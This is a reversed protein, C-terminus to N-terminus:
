WQALCQLPPAPPPHRLMPPPPPLFSCRGLPRKAPPQPFRRRPPLFFSPTRRLPPLKPTSPAQRFSRQGGFARPRLLPFPPRRLHPSPALWLPTRLRRKWPTALPIWTSPSSAFSRKRRLKSATFPPKAPPPLLSQPSSRHSSPPHLLGRKIAASTGFRGNHFGRFEAVRQSTVAGLYARDRRRTERAHFTPPTAPRNADGRGSM